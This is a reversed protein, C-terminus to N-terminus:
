PEPNFTSSKVIGARHVRRVEEWGKEKKKKREVVSPGAEASAGPGGRSVEPIFPELPTSPPGELLLLSASSLLRAPLPLM